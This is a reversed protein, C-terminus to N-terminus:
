YSAADDRSFTEMAWSTGGRFLGAEQNSAEKHGRRLRTLEIDLGSTMVLLAPGCHFSPM